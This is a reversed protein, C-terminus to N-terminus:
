SRYGFGEFCAAPALVDARITVDGDFGTRDAADLDLEDRTNSQIVAVRNTLLRRTHQFFETDTVGLDRNVVLACQRENDRSADFCGSQTRSNNMFLTGEDTRTVM